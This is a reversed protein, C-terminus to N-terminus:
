SIKIQNRVNAILIKSPKVYKEEYGSTSLFITLLFDDNWSLPYSSWQGILVCLLNNIVVFKIFYFPTIFSTNFDCHYHDMTYQECAFHLNVMGLVKGYSRGKKRRKRKM